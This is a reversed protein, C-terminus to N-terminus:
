PNIPGPTVPKDTDGNTYDITEVSTHDASPGLVDITYMFTVGAPMPADMDCHVASPTFSCQWGATPATINVATVTWGAPMTIDATGGSVGDTTPWEVQHPEATIAITAPPPPPTPPPNVPIVASTSPLKV